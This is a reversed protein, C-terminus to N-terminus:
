VNGKGEGYYRSILVAADKHSFGNLWLKLLSRRIAKSPKLHTIKLVLNEWRVSYKGQRPSLKKRTGPKRYTKFKGQTKRKKM